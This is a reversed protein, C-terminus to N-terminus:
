GRLRESAWRIFSEGSQSYQKAVSPIKIKVYPLFVRSPQLADFVEYDSQSSNRFVGGASLKQSRYCQLATAKKQKIGPTLLFRFWKDNSTKFKSPLKLKGKGQHISMPFPACRLWVPYALLAPPSFWFEAPHLAVALAIFYALSAHDPHADQAHPMLITTPQFSDLTKQVLRMIGLSTYPACPSNMAQANDSYGTTPSRYAPSNDWYRDWIAALGQDPFGWFHIQGAHLGLFVLASLSEQQRKVALRRLNKASFPAYGRRFASLRSADGNTAVVVQIAASPNEALMAAIVGGGALTEDDPHPAFILLRERYKPQWAPLDKINQSVSNRALSLKM